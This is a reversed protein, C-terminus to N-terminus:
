RSQNNNQKKKNISKEFDNYADLSKKHFEVIDERLSKPEIILDTNTEFRRFYNFIQNKSCSFHMEFLDDNIKIIEGEYKPRDIYFRNYYKLGESTLNVVILENENRHDM